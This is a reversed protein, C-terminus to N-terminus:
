KSNLFTGTEYRLSSIKLIDNSLQELEEGSMNWDDQNDRKKHGRIQTRRWKDSTLTDFVAEFEPVITDLYTSEHDKEYLFGKRPIEWKVEKTIINQYFVQNNDGIIKEWSKAKRQYQHYQSLRIHRSKPSSGNQSRFSKRSSPSVPSSPISTNRSNSSFSDLGSVSNNSRSRKEIHEKMNALRLAEIADAKATQVHHQHKRYQIEAEQRYTLHGDMLRRQKRIQDEMHQERHTKVHKRFKAMKALNLKLQSNSSAKSHVALAHKRQEEMRAREYDSARKRKLRQHKEWRDQINKIKKDHKVMSHVFEQLGVNHDRNHDLHYALASLEDKDLDLAPHEAFFQQLEEVQINQDGDIDIEKFLEHLSLNNEKAFQKLTKVAHDYAAWGFIVEDLHHRVRWGRIFAQILRIARARHAKMRGRNGRFVSQVRLTAVRHRERVIFPLAIEEKEETTDETGYAGRSFGNNKFRGEM